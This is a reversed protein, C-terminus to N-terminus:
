FDFNIGFALLVPLGLGFRFRVNDSVWMWGVEFNLPYLLFVTGATFYNFVNKNIKSKVLRPIEYSRINDKGYEAKVQKFADDIEEESPVGHIWTYSFGLWNSLGLENKPYGFGDKNVAGLFPNGAMGLGFTFHTSDMKLLKFEKDIDQVAYCLHSLLFFTFISVWVILRTKM